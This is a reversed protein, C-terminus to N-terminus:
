TQKSVLDRMTFPGPPLLQDARISGSNLLAVHADSAHLMLDAVLNGVNSERQRVCSCGWGVVLADVVWLGAM